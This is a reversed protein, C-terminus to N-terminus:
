KKAQVVVAVSADQKESRITAIGLPTPFKILGHVTSPIAALKQLTTRGLLANYKSYSRVVAFEVTTSRVLEKNDDDVLKLELEIIGIPWASEEFFGSLATSPAILKACVAGPLLRFCHGYMIDVGCGTDVHLRKIIYGCSEVRGKITIPADSPEEIIAAFLIATNEWEESLELQRRQNARGSTVMNITKDTEKEDNKRQWPYEKEGKPKESSTKGGKKLHQLSGRKLEAVVREILHRCENTEHGYDDHFHCFKRKDRNGYKSLPIPPDFSKCVAEIALIEKPTKTLDSELGRGQVRYYDDDIDMSSSTNGCNQKIDEQTRMYDHTEKIAEAFTDPVRRHLRQWLSLHIDKDICHIFGSVKQSELLDQIKAVEKTYRDIVEGLSEKPKQKIDHCKVHTRKRARLNHFNLLFRSHLDAFGTVSQAPLNNFWERAVGQLVIPLMHCAVADGWSHTGATGEFKQLFDDPDDPNRLGMQRIREQANETTVREIPTEPEVSTIIPVKGVCTTKVKFGSPVTESPSGFSLNKPPLDEFPKFSAGTELVSGDPSYWWNKSPEKLVTESAVPGTEVNSTSPPKSTGKVPAPPTPPTNMITTTPTQFGPSVPSDSRGQNKANKSGGGM